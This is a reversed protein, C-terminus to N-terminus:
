AGALSIKEKVEHFDGTSVQLYLKLKAHAGEARSSSRNGFLLYKDTWATVFKEKWPLWIQKICELADKKEKYLLEFEHWNEEFLAKTTSYVVNNWGGRVCQLIVYKDKRSSRISLAYGKSYYFEQVNKLLDDSSEFKSGALYNEESQTMSTTSSMLHFSDYVIEQIVGQFTTFGWLNSLYYQRKNTAMRMLDKPFPEQSVIFSQTSTLHM